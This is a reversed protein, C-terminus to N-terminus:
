VVHGLRRPDPRGRSQSGGDAAAAGAPGSSVNPEAAAVSGAASDVSM